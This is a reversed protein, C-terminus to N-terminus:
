KGDIKDYDYLHYKEIVAILRDGYDVATSYGCECLGNAWNRYDNNPLKFLREYRKHGLFLSHYHYCEDVSNFLCFPEQKKDDDKFILDSTYNVRYAKIGFHNNGVVALFSTGWDSELMGQALTVSAPIGYERMERQAFTAYLNCYEKTTLRKEKKFQTKSSYVRKGNAICPPAAAFAVALVVLALIALLRKKM